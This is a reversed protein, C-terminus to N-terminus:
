EKGEKGEFLKRLPLRDKFTFRSEFFRSFCGIIFGNLLATVVTGVNVGVFHWLGFFAFSLVLSVACSVCDYVTKFRNIDVRMKGSVEKVFFEYAAPSFYTHFMMSVGLSCLLMGVTFFAIRLAMGGDPVLGALLLFGDLTFGYIVATVFSFLYSLRFRRLILAMVLLLLAQLTYEAMGFTFFSLSESIKLHLIYAPAVVMSLGFDARTMFATGLALTLIGILYALETYLTRKKTTVNKQNM